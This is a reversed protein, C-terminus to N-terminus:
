VESEVAKAHLVGPGLKSKPRARFTALPGPMQCRCDVKFLELGGRGTGAAVRSSSAWIRGEFDWPRGVSQSGGVPATGLFARVVVGKVIAKPGPM